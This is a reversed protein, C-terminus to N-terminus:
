IQIWTKPLIDLQNSTKSTTWQKPAIVIKDGNQNLWASWWSFSSNSIINYKCISLLYLEEYDAIESSSVFSTPYLFKINEKAWNIDDSFVFVEINKDDTIGIIKEIANEYYGIDCTGHYANTKTNQVYDGRRIHVSVSNETKSMKEKWVASAGSLPNKLTFEKRIDNEINKFYKESQWFGNEKLGLRILIKAFFDSISQNKQLFDTKTQINFNNLKFDRATDIRAKNAYFFSTDFVVKKGSLEMNRGYAYQFLQNGLGGKLKIIMM